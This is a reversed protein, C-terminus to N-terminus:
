NIVQEIFPCLVWSTQVQGNIIVSLNQIHKMRLAWMSCRCEEVKSLLMKLTICQWISLWVQHDHLSICVFCLCQNTPHHCNCKSYHLPHCCASPGRREHKLCRLSQHCASPVGGSVKRAVSPPSTAPLQLNDTVTTHSCFTYYRQVTYVGQQRRDRWNEAVTAQQYAITLSVSLM